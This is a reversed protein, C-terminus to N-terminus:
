DKTAVEDVLLAAYILAQVFALCDPPALEGAEFAILVPDVVGDGFGQSVKIEVPETSSVFRHVGSNDLSDIAHDKDCWTPCPVLTNAPLQREDWTTTM